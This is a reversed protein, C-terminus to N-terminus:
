LSDSGSHCTQVYCAGAFVLRCVVGSLLQHKTGLSPRLGVDGHICWTWVGPGDRTWPVLASRRPFHDQWKAYPRFM